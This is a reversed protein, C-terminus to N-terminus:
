SRTRDFSMEKGSVVTGQERSIYEQRGALLKIFSHGICIKNSKLPHGGEM